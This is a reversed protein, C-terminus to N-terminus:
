RRAAALSPGAPERKGQGKAALKDMLDSISSLEEFGMVTDKIADKEAQDLAAGTVADFKEKVVAQDLGGDSIGPPYPAETM